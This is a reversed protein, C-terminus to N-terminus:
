LGGRLGKVLAVYDPEDDPSLLGHRIFFDILVLPVNFKFRETSRLLDLVDKPDMLFFRSIEGDTNRPTFDEPVELDYIFLTDPKLGWEGAMCYGLAGVPVAGEVMGQPVGAEEAAEKILNERLGLRAPQGGAVMNDLKNPEVKRDAARQAIWLKLSDGQRVYGNLHVGFARLGFVSIASRDILLLPADGWQGVVRYDEGLAKPFDGERRLQDLVADVATTRHTPLVLRDDLRVAGDTVNFVGPFAALREALHHRVAGLPRNSIEFPRYDAPDFANCREIHDLLSM